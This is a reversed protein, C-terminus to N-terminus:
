FICHVCGLPPLFTRRIWPEPLSCTSHSRLCYFFVLVTQTLGLRCCAFFSKLLLRPFVFRPYCCFCPCQYSLLCRLSCRSWVCTVFVGEGSETLKSTTLRTKPGAMLIFVVVCTYIYNQPCFTVGNRDIKVLRLTTLIFGRLGTYWSLVHDSLKLTIYILFQYFLLFCIYIVDFKTCSRSM